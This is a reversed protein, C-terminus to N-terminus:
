ITGKRRAEAVSEPEPWWKTIGFDEAIAAAALYGAGLLVCGGPYTCSGGMYLGKVPSRHLSCEENPRMYGMQLPHYLGQKISGEVMDPFKNEIDVPTSIYKALVKDKTGPAYKNLTAICREAYEQKFNFNYWRNAGGEKLRYSVRQSILGTCKGPPAQSPDHVSPFSCDFFREDLEGRATAEYHSILDEMTEFGIIYVFANNIEPDSAAAAFSPPAELAMHVNLFSWKEWQWSKVSGVFDPSLNEEGVLKLFTQHTDLTSLVAKDTLVITGDELEVGKAVGGEVIIRKIRESTLALGGNQTVIKHLTQALMHSGGVCLRYNTARNFYLPALYGIGTTDYELGWMCITYLIMTRVQDNTFLEEVIEKPSKEALEFLERGLETQQMKVAQDLTPVAPVYTAPGLFDQVYSRFKHYVERYTDADQRSFKAISSCTREVDSYLCLCRGDSFPMAFQLAPYVHKLNYQEELKLDKYPPAFDVMMMYIAHLNNLYGPLAVDQTDLGGGIENRQELLLVKLGAKALYAGATLGNPGAGIIIVDYKRM